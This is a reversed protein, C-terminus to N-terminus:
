DLGVKLMLGVTRPLSMEVPVAGYPEGLNRYAPNLYQDEVTSASVQGRTDFVNKVFADIEITNSLFFALDANVTNYAPLKYLPNGTGAIAESPSVAYGANREGVWVDSVDLAGSYGGGLDFTYTGELAFNFRPSLPLRAGPYLLGLVPSPTTLYANTYTATGGFTFDPLVRYRVSGEAGYVRADGANVPQNIGHVNETAQIDSWEIDYIDADLTLRSDLLTSKEGIEYNWLTDPKFTPPVESFLRSLNFNPGGPRFGSAARAYIMTDDTIQYRPNFLYTAEGGNYQPVKFNYLTTYNPYLLLSSISSQYNQEQSSYRIGLTVDLKDTFFYTGDAYGAFERYTSPLFGYFPLVNYFPVKWNATAADLLFLSEDTAEHTFYGGVVWEFNKNDPSTLRMEQTFKRTETDLPLSFPPAGIGFPSLLFDYLPTVDTDSSGHNVQYGTISELDAWHLNWNLVGSFLEFSNSIPQTLAYSQDYPGEVPKHTLFNYFAVDVGDAAINQSFASLRVSFDSTAQWLFSVRGSYTRASGVDKRDHDPDQAYGSDYERVGDIRIAATGDLFPINAMVRLADNNGGHDTTSGEAEALADYGGPDPVATVYKITGGLANAGYLTGQPGNLVEVRGLDFTDFNFSQFGLGFQTSAGVPVDDLYLGIASGLQTSGTTIGRIAILNNSPGGSAYSVGPVYNAFDGFNNAHIRELAASNLATVQGAVSQLDESRREATVVVTEIQGTNDQAWAPDRFMSIALPLASILLATKSIPPM